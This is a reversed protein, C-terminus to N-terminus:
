TSDGRPIGTRRIANNRETKEILGREESVMRQVARLIKWVSAQTMAHDTCYDAVSPTNLDQRQYNLRVVTQWEPRLRHYVADCATWNARDSPAMDTISGDMYRVYFRLM